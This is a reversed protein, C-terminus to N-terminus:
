EKRRPMVVFTGRPATFVVPSDEGTAFIQVSEIPVGSLEVFGDVYISNVLVSKVIEGNNFEIEYFMSDDNCLKVTLGYIKRLSAITKDKSLYEKSCSLIGDRNPTTKSYLDIRVDENMRFNNKGSKILTEPHIDSTVLLWHGNTLYNTGADYINMIVSIEKFSSSVLKQLKKESIM